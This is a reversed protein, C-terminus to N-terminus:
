SRSWCSLIAAALALVVTGWFYLTTFYHFDIPQIM